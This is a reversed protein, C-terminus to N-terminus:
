VAKQKFYYYLEDSVARQEKETLAEWEKKVNEDGCNKVFENVHQHNNDKKVVEVLARAVSIMEEQINM